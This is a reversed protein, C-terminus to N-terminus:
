EDSISCNVTAIVALCKANSPVGKLTIQYEGPGFGHQMSGSTPVEQNMWPGGNLILKKVDSSSWAFMYNGFGDLAATFNVIPEDEVKVTVKATANGNPGAATLTYTVSNSQKDILWSGNDPVTGLEPAHQSPHSDNHWHASLKVSTANTTIWTLYCSGGAQISTTNAGFSTIKVSQVKVTVPKEIPGGAGQCVLTYTTTNAPIVTISGKDDSIDIPTLTEGMSSVQIQLSSAYATDWSLTVKHGSKVASNVSSAFSNIVVPAVTVTLQKQAVNVELSQEDSDEEPSAAEAQEAATATLTYVTTEEPNVVISDDAELNSYNGPLLSITAANDIEWSLTCKDGQTMIPKDAVFSTIAVNAVVIQFQKSVAPGDGFATITYTTTETPSVSVSDTTKLDEYTGPSLSVRSAATTVWSLEATKGPAITSPVSQFSNIELSSKVKNIQAQGDLTEDDYVEKILIIATGDVDNVQINLWQFTVTEGAKLGTVPALPKALYTGASVETFTWTTQISNAIIGTDVDTFDFAGSGVSFQFAVSNLAIDDSTENSIAITVTVVSPYDQDRTYFVQDPTIHYNLKLESNGQQQINKAM